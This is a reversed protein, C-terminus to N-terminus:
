KKRPNLIKDALADAQENTFEVPPAVSMTAPQGGDSEAAKEAHRAALMHHFYHLVAQKTGQTHDHKAAETHHYAAMRHHEAGKYNGAADEDKAFENHFAASSEHHKKLADFSM